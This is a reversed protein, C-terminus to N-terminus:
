RIGSCRTLDSASTFATFITTITGETSARGMGGRDPVRRGMGGPDVPVAVRDVPVTAEVM